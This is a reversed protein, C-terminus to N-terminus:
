RRRRLTMLGGLGVLALSAPEPILAIEVDDFGGRTATNKLDIRAQAGPATFPITNSFVGGDVRARATGGSVEIDYVHWGSGIAPAGPIAVGNQPGPAGNPNLTATGDSYLMLQLTHQVVNLDMVRFAIFGPDGVISDFNMAVSIVHDDDLTVHHLIDGNFGTNFDMWLANPASHAVPSGSIQGSNITTTDYVGLGVQNGWTGINPNSGDNTATYTDWNESFVIAFVQTSTFVAAVFMMTVISSRM